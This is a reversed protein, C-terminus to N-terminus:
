DVDVGLKELVLRRLTADTLPPGQYVGAMAGDAAVFVTVPLGRRRLARFLRGDPDELSDFPLQGDAAYSLAAGTRDETAVGVVRVKGAAARHLRALAPLEQRCPACWSAWLNLVTPRGTLRRLPLAPASGGGGLCRLELDPLATAAASRPGPAPCGQGVVAGVQGPGTRSPAPDHAGCGAVALAALLAGARRGAPRRSM